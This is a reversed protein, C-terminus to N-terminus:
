LEASSVWHGDIYVAAWAAGVDMRPSFGSEGNVDATVAQASSSAGSRYYEWTGTAGSAYNYFTITPTARKTVRYMISPAYVASNSFSTTGGEYLGPISNTTGLSTGINYSKEFYRQCLSLEVGFPRWDFETAQTGREFQVGTIYFTAANTGIVSVAGTSSVHVSSNWAGATGNYNSGAGLNFYIHIGKGNTTLWTGTTDGPITITEKEWTNAQSITYSFPYSRTFDGNNVSGGFTGTLSSRVWFSITVPSANSTGWNLDAINYGEITQLISFFDTSLVSYASLSTVGLYNRFGPPPTVSGANQQVSFKSSQTNNTLWRDLTYFASTPTVSAGAYRQDIVMGGNIIRNKFGFPSGQSNSISDIATQIPM